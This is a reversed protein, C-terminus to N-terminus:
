SELISIILISSDLMDILLVGDFFSIKKTHNLLYAPTVML